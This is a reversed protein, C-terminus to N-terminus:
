WGGAKGTMMNVISSWEEISRQMMRIPPGTPSGYELYVIYNVNNYIQGMVGDRLSIGKVYSRARSIASEGSKDFTGAGGKVWKRTAYSKVRRRSGAGMPGLDSSMGAGGSSDMRWGSRARGTDVPTRLVIRRFVELMSRRVVSEATKLAKKGFTDVQAAFGSVIGGTGYGGGFFSVAM